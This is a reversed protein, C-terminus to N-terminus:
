PKELAKLELKKIIKRQRDGRLKRIDESYQQERLLEKKQEELEKKHEVLVRSRKILQM